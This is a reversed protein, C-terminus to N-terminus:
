QSRPFLPALTFVLSRLVADWFRSDTLVKVYNLFGVFDMKPNSPRYNTFSMQVAYIMPYVVICLIIIIAPLYLLIGELKLKNLKYRDTGNM